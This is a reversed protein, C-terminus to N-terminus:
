NKFTLGVNAPNFWRQNTIPELKVIIHVIVPM